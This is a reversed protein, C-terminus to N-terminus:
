IDIGLDEGRKALLEEAQKELRARTKPNEALVADLFEQDTSFTSQGREARRANGCFLFRNKTNKPFNGFVRQGRWRDLLSERLLNYVIQTKPDGATKESMQRLNGALLNDLRKQAKARIQEHSLWNGDDDKKTAIADNLIQRLGYEYIHRQVANSFANTDVTLQGYVAQRGLPVNLTDFM